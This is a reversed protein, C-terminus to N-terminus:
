IRKLVGAHSRGVAGLEGPGRALKPADYGHTEIADLAMVCYPGPLLGRNRPRRSRLDLLELRAPSGAAKGIRAIQEYIAVKLRQRRPAPNTM